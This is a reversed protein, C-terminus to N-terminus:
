ARLLPTTGGQDFYRGSSRFIRGPTGNMLDRVFVGVADLADRAEPLWPGVLYWGHWM